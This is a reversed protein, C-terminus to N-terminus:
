RQTLLLRTSVSRQRGSLGLWSVVITTDLPDANPDQYSVSLSEQSLFSSNDKQSLINNNFWASWDQSTVSDLGQQAVRLMEEVVSSLDQTAITNHRASISLRQSYVLLGLLTALAVGAIM